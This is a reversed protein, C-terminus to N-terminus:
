WSMTQQTNLSFYNLTQRENEQHSRGLNKVDGTGYFAQIGGGGWVMEGSMM